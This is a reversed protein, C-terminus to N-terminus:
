KLRKRVTHCLKTDFCLELPDCLSAPDQAHTVFFGRFDLAPQDAFDILRKFIRLFCLGCERIAGSSPEPIAVNVLVAVSARRGACKSYFRAIDDKGSRRGGTPVTSVPKFAVGTEGKGQGIGM